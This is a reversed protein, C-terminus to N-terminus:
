RTAFACDELMGRRWGQWGSRLQGVITEASQIARAVCQDCLRAKIGTLPGPRPCCAHRGSHPWAASIDLSAQTLSHAAGVGRGAPPAQGYEARTSLTWFSAALAPTAALSPAVPIPVTASWPVFVCLAAAASPKRGAAACGVAWGFLYLRSRWCLGGGGGGWFLESRFVCKDAMCRKCRRVGSVLCARVRLVECTRPENLTRLLLLLLARSPSSSYLRSARAAKPKQPGQPPARRSGGVWSQM